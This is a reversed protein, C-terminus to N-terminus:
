SGRAIESEAKLAEFGKTHVAHIMAVPQNLLHLKNLNMKDVEDWTTLIM